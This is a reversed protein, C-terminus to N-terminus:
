PSQPATQVGSMAARYIPLIESRVHERMGVPPHIGASLQALREPTQVCSELVRRLSSPSGVQFHLGDIGDRVLEAMGGTDSCIVPVGAQFAEHIVVPSNEFWISPVILADLDPLLRIKADDGIVGAARVNSQALVDEFRPFARRLSEATAGFIHLTCGNLGRFAELLVHLGKESTTAGLYGFQLPPMWRRRESSVYPLEMTGYDCYTIRDAPIGWRQMRAALFRSPAIFQDVFAIASRLRRNRQRIRVAAIPREAIQFVVEKGVQRLTLPTTDNYTGSPWWLRSYRHRACSACRFPTGGECRQGWRDFLKVKPCCLWYDHLTFVVRAHARNALRPLETSLYLLHNFHVLDPRFTDLLTRFAAEAEPNNPDVDGLRQPRSRHVATCPLGDYIHTGAPGQPDTYLVHVDAGSAQLEKALYYTYLEAGYRSGPLFSHLAVLVRM